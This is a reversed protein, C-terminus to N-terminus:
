LVARRVNPSDNTVATRKPDEDPMIRALKMELATEVQAPTLDATDVIEGTDVFQLRM